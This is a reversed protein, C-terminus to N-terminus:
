WVLRNTFRHVGLVSSRKKFLHVIGYTESFWGDVVFFLGVSSSFVFQIWVWIKIYTTKGVSQDNKWIPQGIKRIPQCVKAITQSIRSPGRAGIPDPRPAGPPAGRFFIQGAPWAPKGKNLFCKKKCPCEQNRLNSLMRPNPIPNPIRNPIPNLIPNLILLTWVKVFLYSFCSFVCCSFRPKYISDYFRKKVLDM